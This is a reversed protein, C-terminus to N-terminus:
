LLAASRTAQVSADPSRLAQEPQLPAFFNRWVRTATLPHTPPPPHLRPAGIKPSPPTDVQKMSLVTAVRSDNNAPLPAGMHGPCALGQACFRQPVIVCARWVGRASGAHSMGCAHWVCLAFVTRSEQVHM